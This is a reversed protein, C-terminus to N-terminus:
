FKDSLLPPTLWCLCIVGLNIQNNWGDYYFSSHGLPVNWTWFYLKIDSAYRVRLKV